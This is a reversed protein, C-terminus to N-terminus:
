KHWKNKAQEYANHETESHALKMAVESAFEVPTLTEYLKKGTIIDM